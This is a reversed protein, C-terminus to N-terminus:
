GTLLVKGLADFVAPDTALFTVSHVANQPPAIASIKAQMEGGFTPALGHHTFVYVGATLLINQLQVLVALQAELSLIVSAMVNASVNVVPGGIEVTAQLSALLKTAADIRAALTPPSFAVSLQLAVAGAVKASLEGVAQGVISALAPVAQGVSVQGVLAATV